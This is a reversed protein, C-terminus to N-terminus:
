FFKKNKSLIVFFNSNKTVFRWKTLSKSYIKWLKNHINSIVVSWWEVFMFVASFWEIEILNSDLVNEDSCGSIFLIGKNSDIDTVLCPILLLKVFNKYKRFEDFVRSKSYGGFVGFLWIPSFLRNFFYWSYGFHFHFCFHFLFDRTTLTKWMWFIRSENRIGVM